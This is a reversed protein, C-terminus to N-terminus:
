KVKLRELRQQEIYALLDEYSVSGPNQILKKPDSAVTNVKEKEQNKKNIRDEYETEITKILHGLFFDVGKEKVMVKDYDFIFEEQGFYFAIVDERIYYDNYFRINGISGQAHIMTKYLLNYFAAFEDNQNLKRNGSSSDLTSSYGLNVRFYKSKSKIEQILKFNTVINYTNM